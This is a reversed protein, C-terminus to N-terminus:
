IITYHPFDWIASFRDNRAYQNQFIKNGIVIFMDNLVYEIQIMEM